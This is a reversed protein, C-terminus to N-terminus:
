QMYWSKYVQEGKKCHNKYGKPLKGRSNCGNDQITHECNNCLPTGCVFGSTESCGHTAQEDCCDCKLGDHKECFGNENALENCKGVWPINFKCKM